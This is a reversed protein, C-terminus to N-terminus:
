AAGWDQSDGEKPEPYAYNKIIKVKEMALNLTWGVLAKIKYSMKSVLTTLM